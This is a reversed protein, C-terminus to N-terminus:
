PWGSVGTIGMAVMTQERPMMPIVGMVAVIGGGLTLALTVTRAAAGDRHMEAIFRSRPACWRRPRTFWVPRRATSVRPRM